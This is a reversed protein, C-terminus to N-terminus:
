PRDREGPTDPRPTDSGPNNLDPSNPDPTDGGLARNKGLAASRARSTVDGIQRSYKGKTRKDAFEAAKGLYQDAKEPNERVYRRAAQAASALAGLKNLGAM